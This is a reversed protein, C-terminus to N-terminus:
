PLSAGAADPRPTPATPSPPSEPSDRAQEWGGDLDASMRGVRDELTELRRELRLLREEAQDDLPAHGGGEARARAQQQRVRLTALLMPLILLALAALILTWPDVTRHGSRPPAHVAPRMQCSVPARGEEVV